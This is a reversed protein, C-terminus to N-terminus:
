RGIDRLADGLEGATVVVRASVLSRAFFLIPVVPLVPLVVVFLSGPHLPDGPM